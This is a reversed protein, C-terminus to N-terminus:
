AKLKLRGDAYKHKRKKPQPANGDTTSPCNKTTPWAQTHLTTRTLTQNRVSTDPPQPALALQSAGSCTPLPCPSPPRVRPGSQPRIQSSTTRARVCVAVERRQCSRLGLHQHQMSTCLSLLHTDNTQTDIPRPAYELHGLHCLIGVVETSPLVSASWNQMTRIPAKKM